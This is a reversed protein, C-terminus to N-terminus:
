SLPPAMASRFESMFLKMEDGTGLTVRMHNPMSPFPRGALVRRKKLADIIPPAPRGLDVMVFNTQSPIYQLGMGRVEGYFYDRVEGNLKRIRAV